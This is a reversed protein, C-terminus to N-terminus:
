RLSPSASGVAVVESNSASMGVAGLVPPSSSASRPAYADRPGSWAPSPPGRAAAVPPPGRQPQRQVPLPPGPPPRRNRSRNFLSPNGTLRAATATGYLHAGHRDDPDLFRVLRMEATEASASLRGPPVRGPSGPARVMVPRRGGAAPQGPAPDRRRQAPGTSPAVELRGGRRDLGYTVWTPSRWGPVGVASLCADLPHTDPAPTEAQDPAARHLLVWGAVRSRPRLCQIGRVPASM